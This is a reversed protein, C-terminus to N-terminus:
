RLTILEHRPCFHLHCLGNLVQQFEILKQHHTGKQMQNNDRKHAVKKKIM